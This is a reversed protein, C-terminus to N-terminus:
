SVWAAEVALGILPVLTASARRRMTVVRDPMTAMVVIWFFALKLLLPMDCLVLATFHSGNVFIAGEPSTNRHWSMALYAILSTCLFLAVALTSM